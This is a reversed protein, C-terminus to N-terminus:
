IAFLIDSGLLFKRTCLKLDLILGSLDDLLPGRRIFYMVDFFKWNPFIGQNLGGCWVTVIYRFTHCELYKVGILDLM